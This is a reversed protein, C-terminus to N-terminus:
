GLEDLLAKADKLDATDFGETFWGYVPALLDRAECRKARDRRLRALSIVARLEWLKAKQDRAAALAQHFCEEAQDSRSLSLLVEGRLRHIEAEFCRENKHEVRELAEGLLDWAEDARQAQHHTEAIMLLTRSLWDEDGGLRYAGLSERLLALGEDVHGRQVQILGDYFRGTVAHYRFGQEHALPILAEASKRLAQPSRRLYAFVGSIALASALSLPHSLRRAEAVALRSQKLAQKPYGLALLAWSMFSRCVVGPDWCWALRQFDYGGRASLALVREFDERASSLNGVALNVIGINTHAIVRPAAGQIGEAQELSQKAFKMAM